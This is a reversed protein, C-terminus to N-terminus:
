DVCTVPRRDEFGGTHGHTHKGDVCRVRPGDSRRETVSFIDTEEGAMAEGGRAAGPV